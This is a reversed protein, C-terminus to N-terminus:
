LVIDFYFKYTSGEGNHFTFFHYQIGQEVKLGGNALATLEGARFVKTDTGLNDDGGGVLATGIEAVVGPAWDPVDYGAAHGAAAAAEAVSKVKATLEDADGQDQEMCTVALVLERDEGIYLIQGSSYSGGADVDEYVESHVTRVTPAPPQGAYPPEFTTVTSICYIEDSATGHDWDTEGFCIMGKNRLIM